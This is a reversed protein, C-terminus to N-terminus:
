NLADLRYKAKHRCRLALESRRNLYAPDHSTRLLWLKETLCLDCYRQGKQYSPARDIIEWKLEPEPNLSKEHIHQSLTTANKATEHRFTYKHSTWRAKFEGTSGIYKRPHEETTTAHYIVDTQKCAGQLPCKEPKGCNCFPTAPKKKSLLKKNHAQIIAHINKTCSYSIKVTNRNLLPRLPHKKTFHKDILELFRKGVNTTVSSNFPPNFWIINRKKKKNDEQNQTEETRPEFELRHKYGSEELAKQYEGKATEFDEKTSSIDCLRKNISLPIERIVTPPHNSQTHVYLPKDNPKRYPAYSEKDLNLTVDLFDVTKMKAQLTIKLGLSKFLQHLGQSIKEMQRGGIRNYVALGDDRYLGFELQKFNNKIEKLILLGVLECIEAGDPAGMTVDFDTEKKQWPLTEAEPLPSSKNFLLARRAHKIIKISQDPIPLITRAYEIAKDLLDESISPYYEVIDLQLFHKPKKNDLGNFWDLVSKTSQWQNLGTKDRIERNIEQLLQKSIKGIQSKAPNIIQM